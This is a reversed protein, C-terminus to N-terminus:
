NAGGFQQIHFEIGAQQGNGPRAHAHVVNRQLAARLRADGHERGGAGIGIGHLFQHDTGHQDTGPIDGASDAPDPFLSGGAHLDGGHHFLAFRGKNARLKIFLGDADDSQAGDAGDHGIGGNGQAHVDVAVVGEQGHVGGQPQVTM